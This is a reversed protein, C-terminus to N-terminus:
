CSKITEEMFGFARAVVNDSLLSNKSSIERPWMKGIYVQRANSSAPM